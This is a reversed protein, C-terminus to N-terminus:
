RHYLKFKMKKNWPIGNHTELLLNHDSIWRGRKEKTTVPTQVKSPLARGSSGHRWSKKKFSVGSKRKSFIV